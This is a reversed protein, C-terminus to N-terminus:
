VQANVPPASADAADVIVPRPAIRIMTFGGVVDVFSIVLLLFFTGSAAEKVLLFEASMGLFLLTSLLHDIISRSNIRMAKLIEFWLVIAAFAVLLEGPTCSWDAGSMLPVRIIEQSWGIGPLLFAIMNYIAFPIILLPFGVLFM